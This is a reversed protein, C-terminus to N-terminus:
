FQLEVQAWVKAKPMLDTGTVTGTCSISLTIFDYRPRPQISTFNHINEGYPFNTELFVSISTYCCAEARFVISFGKLNKAHMLSCAFM